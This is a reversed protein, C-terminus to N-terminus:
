QDPEADALFFGDGTRLGLNERVILWRGASQLVDLYEMEQEMVGNPSTCAKETVTFPGMRIAQGDNPDRVGEVFEDYPGEVEFSGSYDNCGSFGSVTGDDGFHLTIESGPWLNTMGGASESEYLTVNWSTGGLEPAVTDGQTVTGAGSDLATTTATTDPTTTAAQTTSPPQTVTDADDDGCAAVLVMVVLGAWVVIRKVM